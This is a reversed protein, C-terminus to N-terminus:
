FLESDYGFKKFDESYLDYVADRTYDTYRDRLNRNYVRQNHYTSTFRIGVKDELAALDYEYCFITVDHTDSELFKYQPWFLDYSIDCDIEDEILSNIMDFPQKRVFTEFDCLTPISQSLHNYLSLFRSYPNRVVSLIELSDLCERTEWWSLPQHTFHRNYKM